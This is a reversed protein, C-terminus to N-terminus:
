TRVRRKSTGQGDMRKTKTVTKYMHRMNSLITYFFKKYLFLYFSPRFTIKEDSLKDKSFISFRFNIMYGIRKNLEKLNLNKNPEPSSKKEENIILFM